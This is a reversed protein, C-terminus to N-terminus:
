YGNLTHKYSVWYLRLGTQSKVEPFFKADTCPLNIETCIETQDTQGFHFKLGCYNEMYDTFAQLSMM